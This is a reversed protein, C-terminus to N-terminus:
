YEVSRTTFELPWEIQVLACCLVALVSDGGGGEVGFGDRGM